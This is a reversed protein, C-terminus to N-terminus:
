VYVQSWYMNHIFPELLFITLLYFSVGLFISIPLAPLASNGIALLLLTLLLGSLIAVMCVVFTLFSYQAAKSVLVSYFIFDGLGLKISSPSSREQEEREEEDLVRYVKGDEPKVFVTRKIENHRDIVNYRVIQPEEERTRNRRFGFRSRSSEVPPPPPLREIRGGRRPYYVDVLSILEDVSFEGETSRGDVLPLKYLIAIALPVSGTPREETEFEDRSPSVVLERRSQSMVDPPQLHTEDDQTEPAQTPQRRTGVMEIGQENDDDQAESSSAPAQDHQGRDALMNDSQGHRQSSQPLPTQAPQDPSVSPQAPPTPETQQRSPGQAQVSESSAPQRAQPARPERRAEAPLQAEYLLAPIQEAGDRGMLDVLANLPGCPTLVAYLDYLALLVLLVWALVDSFNSLEWALIVSITILYGQGVYTPVGRGDFLTYVGVITFNYLILAFSLKTITLSYRQIAEYFLVGGFYGLLFTISLVLYGKLFCMCKYKYLLVVGFTMITIVAIIILGNLLGIGLQQSSSADSDVEIASYSSTIAEERAKASEETRIFNTALASLIMAISVPIATAKYSAMVYFITSLPITRRSATGVQEREEDNGDDNNGGGRTAEESSPVVQGGQQDNDNRRDNREGGRAVEESSPAM